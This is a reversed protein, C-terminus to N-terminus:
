RRPCIARCVALVASSDLTPENACLAALVLMGLPYRDADLVPVSLRQRGDTLRIYLGHEQYVMNLTKKKLKGHFKFELESSWGMLIGLVQPLERLTLMFVVKEDWRYHGAGDSAAGEIMVTCLRPKHPEQDALDAIEWTLAASQGFVKSQRRMVGAGTAAASPVSARLRASPAPRENSNAAEQDPPLSGLWVRLRSAAQAALEADNGCLQQCLRLFEVCEPQKTAHQLLLEARYEITQDHLNQRLVVASIHRLARLLEFDAEEDAGKALAMAAAEIEMVQSPGLEALATNIDQRACAMGRDEMTQWVFGSIRQAHTSGTDQTM